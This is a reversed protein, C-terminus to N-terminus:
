NGSVGLIFSIYYKIKKKGIVFAFGTIDLM